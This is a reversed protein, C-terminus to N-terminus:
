ENNNKKPTIYSLAQKSDTIGTTTPDLTALYVFLALNVFMFPNSLGGVIVDWLAGWTTMESFEVGSMMFLNSFFAVGIAIWFQPNRLRIKWNIKPM